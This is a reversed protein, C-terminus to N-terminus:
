WITKLGVWNSTITVGFKYPAIKCFIPLPSTPPGPITGPALIPVLLAATNSDTSKNRSKMKEM